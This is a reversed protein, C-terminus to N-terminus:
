NGIQALLMYAARAMEPGPRFLSASQAATNAMGLLQSLADLSGVERVPPAAAPTREASAVAAGSESGLKKEFRAYIESVSRPAGGKDYFIPRNARAASPLLADARQDPNSAMAKLFTKAGGQGLFHAMYLDTANAPRGTVSQIAGANDAAHEAAMLAATEPQNRLAMVADRKAPDNICLGGGPSQSICDAAWGLGHKAGHEKLVSLWTRDIFQYLGSASSTRAKAGADLGSEVKAQNFLYDFDVGTRRSAQEIAARVRTAANSAITNFPQM